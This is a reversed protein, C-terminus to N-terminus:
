GVSLVINIESSIYRNVTLSLQKFQTIIIITFTANERCKLCKQELSTKNHLNAIPSIRGSNQRITNKTSDAWDNTSTARLGWPPLAHHTTLHFKTLASTYIGWGQCIAASAGAWTEDSCFVHSTRMRLVYHWTDILLQKFALTLKLWNYIRLWNYHTWYSSSTTM